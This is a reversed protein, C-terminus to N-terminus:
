PRRPASRTAPSPAPRPILNPPIPRPPSPRPLPPTPFPCSFAALLNALPRPVLPTNAGSDRGAWGGARVGAHVVLGGGKVRAPSPPAGGAPQLPGTSPPSLIAWQCSMAAVWDCTPRRGATRRGRPSHPAVPGGGGKRRGGSWEAHEVASALAWLSREKCIGGGGWRPVSSPPKKRRKHHDSQCMKDASTVRPAWQVHSCQWQKDRDLM